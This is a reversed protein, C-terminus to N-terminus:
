DGVDSTLISYTCCCDQGFCQNLIFDWIEKTLTSSNAHVYLKIQSSEAAVPFARVTQRSGPKGAIAKRTREGCGGVDGGKGMSSLFNVTQRSSPVCSTGACELLRSGAEGGSRWEM